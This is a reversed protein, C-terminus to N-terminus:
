IISQKKEKEQINKYFTNVEKEINNIQQLEKKQQNVSIEQKLITVDKKIDQLINSIEEKKDYIKYATDIHNIRELLPKKISDLTKIFKAREILSKIIYIIFAFIPFVLIGILIYLQYNILTKLM